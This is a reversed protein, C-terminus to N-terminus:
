LIKGKNTPKTIILKSPDLVLNRRNYKKYKKSYKLLEGERITEDGNSLSLNSHSINNIAAVNMSAEQNEKMKDIQYNSEKRNTDLYVYYLNTSKKNTYKGPIDKLKLRIETYPNEDDFVIFGYQNSNLNNYNSNLNESNKKMLHSIIESQYNSLIDQVTNEREIKLEILTKKHRDLYLITMDFNKNDVAKKNSSSFVNKLFNIM